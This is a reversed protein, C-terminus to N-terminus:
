DNQGDSFIDQLCDSIQQWNNEIHDAASELNSRRIAEIIEGHSRHNITAVDDTGNAVQSYRIYQKHLSDLILKLVQNPCNMVLMQHWQRDLSQHGNGHEGNLLAENIQELKILTEEGPVPISRVALSELAAAVSLLNSCDQASIERIFFGRGPHSVIIAENELRMLAERLPTRSIGLEESLSSENIRQGPKLRGDEVRHLIQQGVEDRLVTKKIV